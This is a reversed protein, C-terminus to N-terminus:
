ASSESLRLAALQVLTLPKLNVVLDDTCGKWSKDSYSYEVREAVLLIAALKLADATPLMFSKYGGEVVVMGSLASNAM